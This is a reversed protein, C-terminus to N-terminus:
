GHKTRKHMEKWRGAMEESFYKEAKRFLGKPDRHRHETDVFAFRSDRCIPVNSSLTGSALGLSLVRHLEKLVSGGARKWAKKSEGVAIQADEVLLIARSGKQSDERSRAGLWLYKKPVKFHVSDIDALVAAIKRAARCRNVFRELASDDNLYAKVLHGPLRRHRLVYLGTKRRFDVVEFGSKVFDRRDRFENGRPFLKKMAQRLHHERPMQMQSQTEAESTDTGTDTDTDTGTDTGTGTIPDEMGLASADGAAKPVPMPVPMSVPVPATKTIESNEM